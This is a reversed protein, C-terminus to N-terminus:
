RFSVCHNCIHLDTGEEIDWMASNLEEWKEILAVGSPLEGKMIRKQMPVMVNFFNRRIETYSDWATETLPNPALPKSCSLDAHKLLNKVTEPFVIGREEFFSAVGGGQGLKIVNDAFSKLKDDKHMDGTEETVQAAMKYVVAQLAAQQDKTHKGFRLMSLRSLIHKMLTFACYDKSRAGDAQAM